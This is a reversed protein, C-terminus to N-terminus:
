LGELEVGAPHEVTFRYAVMAHAGPALEMTWLLEGLDTQEDPAPSAERLRVRIDGDSSVPIHDHVTILAPVERHNQVTTEYGIDVSRTGGLVAKGATRRVLKREIRIREDVGLQLGFQEGPAVTDLKTQGAFQNDRFIRAPGPLLLLSSRNTVTARLYAETALVPVALYDLEAALDLVAIATKHPEGDAPVAIPRAVRYTQGAESEAVEATLPPAPAALRAAHRLAMGEEGHGATAAFARARAVPAQRRGVYWPRLEPLQSGPGGPRTTALVLETAPWDEGTRQTIEALYSATLQEGSMAIDYLPRWSAGSVHYSVDITATVAQAAEIVASVETFQAAGARQGAADLREQAAALEREAARKRLAIDRRAALAAAVSSSLHDAMRGLEDRGTRGAGVARALAGAAAESLHGSFTLRAQEAADEDDAAQIADQWREVDARLRLVENRSPDAGYQRRAQVELLAVGEGRVGIRVSAPDAAAPLAEILVPRLGPSLEAAGARVVRAGDRFVTVAIIPAGMPAVAGQGAEEGM